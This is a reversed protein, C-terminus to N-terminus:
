PSPPCPADPGEIPREYGCKTCQLRTITRLSQARCTPCVTEHVHRCYAEWAQFAKPSAIFYRGGRDDQIGAVIREGFGPCSRLVNLAALFDREDAIGCGAMAVAFRITQSTTRGKCSRAIWEFLGCVEEPLPFGEEM